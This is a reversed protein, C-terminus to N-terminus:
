KSLSMDVFNSAINLRVDVRKSHDITIASSLIKTDQNTTIRISIIWRVIDAKCLENLISHLILCGLWGGALSGSEGSRHSVGRLRGEGGECIDSPPCVSIAVQENRLIAGLLALGKGGDWWADFESVPIPKRGVSEDQAKVGPRPYPRPRKPRSKGKPTNACAFEYRLWSLQDFVDALLMAIRSDGQWHASEPSLESVLESGADLHGVFSRLARWSLHEPVDELTTGSCRTM